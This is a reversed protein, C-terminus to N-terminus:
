FIKLLHYLIIITSNTEIGGDKNFTYDDSYVSFNDLEPFQLENKFPLM